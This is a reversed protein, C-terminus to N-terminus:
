LEDILEFTLTLIHDMPQDGSSDLYLTTGDYHTIKVHIFNNLLGNNFFFPVNTTIDSYLYGKGVTSDIINHWKLIGVIDTNTLRGNSFAFNSNCGLNIHILAPGIDCEDPGIIVNTNMSNYVFNCKYKGCPITASWDIFYYTNNKTSGENAAFSNIYFNFIRCM